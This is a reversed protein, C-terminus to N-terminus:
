KVESNSEKKKKKRIADKCLSNFRSNKPKQVNEILKMAKNVPKKYKNGNINSMKTIINTSTVLSM